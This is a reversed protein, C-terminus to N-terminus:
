ISPIYLIDLLARVLWRQEGSIKSGHGKEGNLVSLSISSALFLMCLQWADSGLRGMLICLLIPGCPKRKGLAQCEKRTKGWCVGLICVHVLQRHVEALHESGSHLSILAHLPYRTFDSDRRGCGKVLAMVFEHFPIFTLSFYANVKKESKQFNYNTHNM